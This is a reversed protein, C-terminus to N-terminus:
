DENFSHRGLNVHRNIDMCLIIGFSAMVSLMVTGGYSILPLPIGVVPLLGLVMAINIFVYMFYNTNLGIVVLKGYYSTIRYAFLYGYAIIILNLLIVSVGGVLGFEESLMTFIFDTHKEPLFNLHSQTGNLFGKGFVGGSGLAIKSQIIHYGSGLPDREPNLFTLVRNKQYDHLFHWAIPALVVAGGGLLLFKWVQVGVCFFVVMTTFLLMLATGLDPQLIILAAPFLAMLLPAVIGRISEIQALTSSHFYKALFLVMSIKMLESPQLKFLKLDIWRQAGMGIHGFVEVAILLLLVAFYALYSYKLYVKIDIFALFFMLAFSFGFRVLQNKAWPTMSGGAASYLTFLGITTLLLICIIYGGSLSFFKEKLSLEKKLGAEYM